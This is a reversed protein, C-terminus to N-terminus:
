AQGWGMSRRGSTDRSSTQAAELEDSLDALDIYILPKLLGKLACRKVRVPILKRQMGQPDQAFMSAWESQPFPADVYDDTLVMIIKRATKLADDMRLVFNEGPRFDRKQYIVRYQALELWHTIWMAYAQDVSTYSVFFDHKPRVPEPEITLKTMILKRTVLILRSWDERM